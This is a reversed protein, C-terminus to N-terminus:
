WQYTVAGGISKYKDYIRLPFGNSSVKAHKVLTVLGLSTRRADEMRHNKLRTM